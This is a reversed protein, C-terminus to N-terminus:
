CRGKLKSLNNLSPAWWLLVSNIISDSMCAKLTRTQSGHFCLQESFTLNIRTHKLGGCDWNFVFIEHYQGKLELLTLCIGCKFVQSLKVYFHSPLVKQWGVNKPSKKLHCQFLLGMPTVPGPLVQWFFFCFDTIQSFLRKWFM